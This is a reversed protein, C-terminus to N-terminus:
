PRSYYLSYRRVMGLAVLCVIGLAPILIAVKVGGAPVGTGSAVAGSELQVSDPTLDPKITTTSAANLAALNAFGWDYLATSEAYHAPTGMVVAILTHGDRHVASILCNGAGRTFGTKVGMAGPIM